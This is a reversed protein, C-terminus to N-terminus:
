TNDETMPILLNSTYEKFIKTPLIKNTYIEDSLQIYNKTQAVDVGNFRGIIGLPKVKITMHSDIIDIVENAIELTPSSIAFDDVQRLFYLEQGKYHPHHYLCPKHKCPKFGINTISNNILSAWIRPSETHGQM